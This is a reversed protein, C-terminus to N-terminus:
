GYDTQWTGYGLSSAVMSPTFEDGSSIDEPATLTCFGVPIETVVGTVSKLYALNVLDADLTPAISCKPVKLFVKSGDIHQEVDGTTVTDSSLSTLTGNKLYIPRLDGGVTQDSVKVTGHDLYIINKGNGGNLSDKIIYDELIHNLAYATILHGVPNAKGYNDADNTYDTGKTSAYKSRVDNGDSGVLVEGRRILNPAHSMPNDRHQAMVYLAQGSPVVQGKKLYSPHANEDNVHSPITEVDGNINEPGGTKVRSHWNFKPTNSM